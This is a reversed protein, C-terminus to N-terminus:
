NLHRKITNGYKRYFLLAKQSAHREHDRQPWEQGGKYQKQLGLNKSTGHYLEHAFTLIQRDVVGGSVPLRLQQIQKESFGFSNKDLGATYVDRNGAGKSSYFGEYVTMKCGVDCGMTAEPFVMKGDVIEYPGGSGKKDVLETSNMVRSLNGLDEYDNFAGEKGKKVDELSSDFEEKIGSKFADFMKNASVPTKGNPTNDTPSQKAINANSKIDFSNEPKRNNGQQQNDFGNIKNMASRGINTITTGRVSEEYEAVADEYSQSGQVISGDATDLRSYGSPDTGSMPNNLIYSYPNISQSNSAEQIFPDVSLFRGLNYDYVRGNM